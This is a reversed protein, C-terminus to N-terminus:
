DSGVTNTDEGDFADASIVPPNLVILEENESMQFHFGKLTPVIDTQKMLSDQLAMMLAGLAQDSLKMKVNEKLLEIITQALVVKAGESYFNTNKPFKMIQNFIKDFLV